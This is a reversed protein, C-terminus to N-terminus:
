ASRRLQRALLEAWRDNILQKSFHRRYTQLAVDRM